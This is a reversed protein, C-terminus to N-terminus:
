PQRGLLAWIPERFAFKACTGTLLLYHQWPKFGPQRISAEVPLGTTESQKTLQNDLGGLGGLVFVTCSLITPEVQGPTGVKPTDFM